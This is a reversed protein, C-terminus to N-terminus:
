LYNWETPLYPSQSLDRITIDLQKSGFHFLNKPPSKLQNVTDTPVDKLFRHRERPKFLLWIVRLGLSFMKKLSYLEEVCWPFFDSDSAAFM